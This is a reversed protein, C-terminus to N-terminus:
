YTETPPSFVDSNALYLTQMDGSKAMMSNLYNNNSDYFFMAIYYVYEYQNFCAACAAKRGDSQNSLNFADGDDYIVNWVKGSLETYYQPLSPTTNVSKKHVRM